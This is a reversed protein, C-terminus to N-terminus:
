RGTFFRLPEEERQVSEDDHVVTGDHCALWQADHSSSAAGLCVSAPGVPLSFGACGATSPSVSAPDAAIPGVDVVSMLDATRKRHGWYSVEGSTRCSAEGLLANAVEVCEEM